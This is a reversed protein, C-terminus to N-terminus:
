FWWLFNTYRTHQLQSREHWDSLRQVVVSWCHDAPMEWPNQCSSSTYLRGPPHYLGWGLSSSELLRYLQRWYNPFCGRWELTAMFLLKKTKSCISTIHFLLPSRQWLSCVDEWLMVKLGHSDEQRGWGLQKFYVIINSLSSNETQEMPLSKRIEGQLLQMSTGLHGPLARKWKLIASLTSRHSGSSTVFKLTPCLRILLCHPLPKINHIFILYYLIIDVFCFLFDYRM